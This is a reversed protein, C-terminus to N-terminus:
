EREAFHCVFERRGGELRKDFLHGIEEFGPPFGDRHGLCYAGGREHDMSTELVFCSLIQYLCDWERIEYQYQISVSCAAPPMM